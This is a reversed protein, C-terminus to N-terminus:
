GFGFRTAGSKRLVCAEIDNWLESGPNIQLRLSVQLADLFEATSPGRRRSGEAEQRLAACKAAIQRVFERGDTANDILSKMHLDAVQILRQELDTSKSPELLTHVVCRRILAPPLDRERNTTMVILLSGVQNALTESRAGDPIERKVFRDLEDVRFRHLGFVELLDNPVDPDAKDIEDILVVAREPDRSANIAAFPEHFGSTSDHEDVSESRYQQFSLADARNFAWWMPGPSVYRVPNVDKGKEKAQADHLRALADFRWLLDRGETRRTVTEEYYRWGLNRAVFPAFSSKGSGPDGFLLLPRQTVIATEAALQLAPDHLYVRGSRDDPEVAEDAEYPMNEWPLFRNYGVDDPM